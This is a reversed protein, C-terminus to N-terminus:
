STKEMLISTPLSQPGYRQTAHTRQEVQYGYRRQAKSGKLLQGVAQSLQLYDTPLKGVPLALPFFPTEQLWARLYPLYFREARQVIEGPTLM